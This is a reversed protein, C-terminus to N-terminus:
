LNVDFSLSTILALTVREITRYDGPFSAKCEKMIDVSDRVLRIVDIEEQQLTGAVIQFWNLLASLPKTYTHQENTNSCSTILEMFSVILPDKCETKGQSLLVFAQKLPM